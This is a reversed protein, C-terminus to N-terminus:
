PASIWTCHVLWRISPRENRDRVTLHVDLASPYDVTAQYTREAIKRFEAVDISGFNLRIEINNNTEPYTKCIYVGKDWGDPNFGATGYHQLVIGEIKQCHISWPADQVLVVYFYIDGVTDVRLWYTNEELWMSDPYRAKGTSSSSQQYPVFEMSPDVSCFYHGKEFRGGNFGGPGVGTLMSESASGIAARTSGFTGDAIQIPSSRLWKNLPPNAPFFRAEPQIRNGDQELGFEVRGDDLKQAVIRVEGTNQISQAVVYGIAGILLSLGIVLSIFRM